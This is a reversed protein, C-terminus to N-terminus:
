EAAFSVYRVSASACANLVDISRQHLSAPDAVISVAIRSGSREASERLRELTRVLQPMMRSDPHDMPAGNLLVDGSPLIDVVYTDPLQVDPAPPVQAPLTISMDAEQTLDTTVMFFILLLFVVDIMPTIEYKDHSELAENRKRRSM